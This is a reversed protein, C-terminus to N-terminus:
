ETPETLNLEFFLAGPIPNDYYPAIEKFGLSRYLARPIAMSKLTDLRMREYGIQQAIAIIEVALRRGIGRARFKPRVYLRKMECITATQGRLAVCGALDEAYTALVLRGGPPAYPGPMTELESSFHQFELDHGLEEAYEEFLVRAQALHHATESEFIRLMTEVKM